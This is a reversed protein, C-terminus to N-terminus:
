GDVRAEWPKCVNCVWGGSARRVWETQGCQGCPESDDRSLGRAGLWREVPASRMKKDMTDMDGNNAEFGTSMPKDVSTWRTWAEAAGHVDHVDTSLPMDVTKQIQAVDAHVDHVRDGVGANVAGYMGGGFSLVLGKEALREGMKYVTNRKKGLAEAIKAFHVPNGNGIRRMTTTFERQDDSLRMDEATGSIVWGYRAADFALAYEGDDVDRGTVKLIATQEGRSRDFGMITDAAGAIGNTGSVQDVWDTESLSKRYHHVAVILVEHKLALEQLESSVQYDAAYAQKDSDGAGGGRFRQLTDVVVLRANPHQGLWSDIAELGGEDRGPWCGSPSVEMREPWRELGMLSRMRNQLRRKHDEYAIYLADGDEVPIQGLAIGGEAVAISIGLMLWSKGKKLGGCLLALGVPMLGEIVVKPEPLVEYQLDSMRVTTAEVKRARATKPTPAVILPVEEPEWDRVASSAIQAVEGRDLPPRCKEANEAMLAAFIAGQGAGRRRMSGALSLLAARRGGQPIYEPLPPAPKGDREDEKVLLAMLWDPIDPLPIVAELPSYGDYWRYSMGTAHVSPPAVVMGGDGKVDLGPLIGARSKILRGPHRLYYHQGGSGTEVAPCWPLQGHEEILKQISEDGGHRPDVDLVVLGSPPGTLVGINAHPWTRWWTNIKGEDATAANTWDDIRPHKGISPCGIRHCDCGDAEPAHLPMISFGLAALRLADERVDRM